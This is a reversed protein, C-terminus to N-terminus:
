NFSAMKSQGLHQTWITTTFFTDVLPNFVLILNYVPPNQTFNKGYPSAIPRLFAQILNSANPMIPNLAIFVLPGAASTQWMQM